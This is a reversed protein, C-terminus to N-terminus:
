FVQYQVEKTVGDLGNTPLIDMPCASLVFIVDMEARLTLYQGANVPPPRIELRGGELDRVREM